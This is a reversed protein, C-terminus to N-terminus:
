RLSRWLNGLLTVLVFAVCTVPFWGGLWAFSSNRPDFMSAIRVVGHVPQGLEGANATSKSRAWQEASPSASGAMLKDAGCYLKGDGNAVAMLTEPVIAIVACRNAVAAAMVARTMLRPWASGDWPGPRITVLVLDVPQRTTSPAVVERVSQEITPTTVAAYTVEIPIEPSIRDIRTGRSRRRWIWGPLGNPDGSALFVTPGNTSEREPDGEKAGPQISGDHAESPSSVLRSRFTQETQPDATLQLSWRGEPTLSAILFYPRETLSDGLDTWASPHWPRSVASLAFTGPPVKQRDALHRRTESGGVVVLEFLSKEYLKWQRAEEVRHTGYRHAMLLVVVFILVTTVALVLHNDRTQDRHRRLASQMSTAASDRERRVLPRRTSKRSLLADKGPWASADDTLEAGSIPADINKIGNPDVAAAHDKSSVTGAENEGTAATQSTRPSATTSSVPQVRSDVFRPVVAALRRLRLQLWILEAVSAGCAVMLGSLGYSGMLDALQLIKRSDVVAHALLGLEFGGLLNSRVFELAVWVVPLWVYAPLRWLRRGIRGLWVFIPLTAGLLLTQSFAEAAYPTAVSFEMLLLCVWMLVGCAYLAIYGLGTMRRADVTLWAWPLSVLFALQGLGLPSLCLVFLIAGTVGLGSAVVLSQRPLVFKQGTTERGRPRGPAKNEAPSDPRDGNSRNLGAIPAPGLSDTDDALTAPRRDTTEAPRSSEESALVGSDAIPSGGRNIPSRPRLRIPRQRHNGSM